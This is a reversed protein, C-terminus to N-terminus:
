HGNGLMLTFTGVVLFLTLGITTVMVTWDVILSVQQWLKNM